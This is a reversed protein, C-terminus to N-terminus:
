QMWHTSEYEMYKATDMAAQRGYYREVVHLALDIGSTLGGATYIVDDSQVFRQGEILTVKPFQKKFNEFADHHTTARKGDLLGAAGLQFAGTCVSM